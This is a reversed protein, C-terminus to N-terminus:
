EDTPEHHPRGGKQSHATQQSASQQDSGGSSDAVADNHIRDILLRVVAVAQGRLILDDGQQCRHLLPTQRYDASIESELEERMAGIFAEGVIEPPGFVSIDSLDLLSVSMSLASGLRQGAEALIATRTEPEAEIRKRLRPASLLAELCGRKGCVCKPGKPDVVVHGIEGAACSRGMVIEGNVCVAAGVGEDVSMFMSNASCQGFTCEGLLAMNTDNCVVAPIHFREELREKLPVNTWGLNVARIVMGDDDVIGPVAVGVGLIPKDTKALLRECLDCVTEPLVDGVSDCPIETRDVIRGCLDTLAGRIVFRRTLDISVIRWGESDVALMVSRKGRGSRRDMGMERLLHSGVMEAVVESIAMRSLGVQRGLEARSMQGSPFLLRFVARINSARVDSPNSKLTKSPM